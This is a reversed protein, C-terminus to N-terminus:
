SGWNGGEHAYGEQHYISESVDVFASVHRSVYAHVWCTRKRKATERLKRHRRSRRLLLLFLLVKEKYEM